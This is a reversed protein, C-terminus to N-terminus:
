KPACVPMALAPSAPAIPKLDNKQLVSNFTTLDSGNLGMWSTVVTKLDNCSAAYARQMPENPAMDGPDMGSPLALVHVDWCLLGQLLLHLYASHRVDALEVRRHLLNM